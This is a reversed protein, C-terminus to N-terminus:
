KLALRLKQVAIGLWEHMAYWGTYASSMSPLYDFFEEGRPGDSMFSLPAPTVQLGAAEFEGVARRMHAAHTVLAIRSIGALKLMDASYLANEQTDLSRTEIWRAEVGFDTKLTEAMLTSEAEFGTPAGGSLLVPLTTQRALRAGYRVRELTLRNVTAKGGFEENIRRQGGGLIVIAQVDTLAKPPIAPYRELPATILGTGAPSSLFIWIALGGWALTKGTRPKRKLLLLGIATVFFPLAPPVLLTSVLKKAFFMLSVTM